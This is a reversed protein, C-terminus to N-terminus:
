LIAGAVVSVSSPELVTTVGAGLFKQSAIPSGSRSEDINHAWREGRRERRWRTVRSAEQTKRCGSHHKLCCVGALRNKQSLTHCPQVLSPEYTIPFITSSTPISGVAEDNRVVREGLQAIAGSSFDLLMIKGAIAACYWSIVLDGTM